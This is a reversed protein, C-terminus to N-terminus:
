YTGRGTGHVAGSEGETDRAELATLAFRMLQVTLLHTPSFVVSRRWLRWLMSHFHVCVSGSPTLVGCRVAPEHSDGDPVRASM